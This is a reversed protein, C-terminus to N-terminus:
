WMASLITYLVFVRLIKCLFQRRSESPALVLPLPVVSRISEAEQLVLILFDRLFHMLPIADNLGTSSTPSLCLQRNSFVAFRLSQTGIRKFHECHRLHVSTPFSRFM